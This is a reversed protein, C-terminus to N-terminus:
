DYLTPSGDARRSPGVASVGDGSGEVGRYLQTRLSEDQEHGARKGLETAAKLQCTGGAVGM